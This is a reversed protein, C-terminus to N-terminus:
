TRSSFPYSRWTRSAYKGPVYPGEHFLLSYLRPNVINLWFEERKSLALFKDAIEPNFITGSWSSIM